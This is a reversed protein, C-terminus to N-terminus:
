PGDDHLHCCSGVARDIRRVVGTMNPLDHGMQNMVHHTM